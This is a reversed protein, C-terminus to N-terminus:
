NSKLSEYTPIHEISNIIRDLNEVTSKIKKDVKETMSQSINFAELIVPMRNRGADQM